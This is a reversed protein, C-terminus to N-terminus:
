SGFKLAVVNNSAAAQKLEDLYNAWGQMMESRQKLHKTRNYARGTADKVAHALQQEIWEIRYELVEDLLTRAMARFGHPVMVTNSYGMTRLATRVGNESLPRSQGRGSPFLYKGRGTLPHLDELIAKSQKSLPVIHPEKMKMLRSPLEIRADEWNVFEWELKRLEGPRLFLYASLKLAAQMPFSGNYQEIALMLFGVDKPNTISPYHTSKSPRLAGTLNSTPNCTARGTQIAYQFVQGATRKTRHATDIVGRKEIRRLIGLLDPTTIEDIPRSGLYPFLEKELMRLSRDRHTKSKGDMKIDFWERGILEFSNDYKGINLKKQIQKELSPDRGADLLQRAELRKLRAQKLSIDPYAGISLTREKGAFRYRYRWLKSGAKKVLLFLGNGDTIKYDKAQPKAHRATTDTIGM